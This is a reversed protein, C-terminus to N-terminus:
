LITKKNTLTLKPEEKVKVENVREWEGSDLMTKVNENDTDVVMGKPRYNGVYKLQEMM